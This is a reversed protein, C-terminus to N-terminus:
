GQKTAAAFRQITVMLYRGMDNASTAVGGAPTIGLGRVTDDFFDDTPVFQSEADQLHGRAQERHVNMIALDVTSNTMGIPGFVHAQMLFAYADFLSGFEGGAALAGLYGATAIGMNEYTHQIGPQNTVPVQALAVMLEEPSLDKGAWPSDDHEMGTRQSLLDRVTVIATADPDSLEFDPWIEVAPTDWELFGEDVLTAVLMANMSKTLSGIGFLTDPTVPEDQGLERVGFGEAYVIEGNQVVAVAAGPIRWQVMSEEIYSTFEDLLEDNLPKLTLIPEDPINADPPDAASPTSRCGSAVVLVVVAILLPILNLTIRKVIHGRIIVFLILTSIVHLPNTIIPPWM